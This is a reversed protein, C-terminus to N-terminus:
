FGYQGSARLEQRIREPREVAEKAQWAALMGPWATEFGSPTAGPLALFDRRHTEKLAAVEAADRAARTAARADDLAALRAARVRANEARNAEAQLRIVEASVDRDYETIFRAAVEPTWPDGPLIAPTYQTM